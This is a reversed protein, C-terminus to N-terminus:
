MKAEDTVKYLMLHFDFKRNPTIQLNSPKESLFSCKNSNAEVAIADTAM